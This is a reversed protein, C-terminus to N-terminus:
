KKDQNDKREAIVELEDVLLRSGIAGLFKDGNASSSMVIALRYKKKKFDIAKFREQDVPEFKVEFAKWSDGETDDVVMKVMSVIRKDTYLTIGNLYTENETIEYFVGSIVGQDKGEAPTDFKGAKGDIYKPGAKYQYYGKIKSPLKAFETGFLTSELPKVAMIKEDLLGNYLSGPIIWSGTGFFMLGKATQLQLGKGSKGQETWYVPYKDAHNRDENFFNMSFGRNSASKWFRGKETADKDEKEVPLWYPMLTAKGGETAPNQVQSWNDFTFKSIEYVKKSEEEMEKELRNRKTKIPDEQNCGVLSIAAVAIAMFLKLKTKTM